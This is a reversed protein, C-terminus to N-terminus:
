CLLGDGNTSLDNDYLQVVIAMSVHSSGGCKESSERETVVVQDRLSFYAEALGGSREFGKDDECDKV